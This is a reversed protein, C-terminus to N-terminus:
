RTAGYSSNIVFKGEAPKWGATSIGKSAISENTGIADAKNTNNVTLVGTSSSNKYYANNTFHMTSAIKAGVVYVNSTSSSHLGFMNNTVIVDTPKCNTINGGSATYAGYFTNKNLTMETVTTQGAAVLIFNTAPETIDSSYFVNNDFTIADVTQTAAFNLFNNSSNAEVCFESDKIVIDKVFNSGDSYIFQTASPINASCNNMVITECTGGGNVRLSYTSTTTIAFDINSLVWYDEASTAPIYSYGSRTVKSRKSPDNGIVVISFSSNMSVGDADSDIFYVGNNNLGKSTSAATILTADGYTEKNIVKGAVVLDFGMQYSDYPTLDTLNVDITKLNRVQNRFGSTKDGFLANETSRKKVTGNNYEFYFTFGKRCDNTRFVIYYDTDAKFGDAPANLTIMKSEGSKYSHGTINTEAKITGLSALTAEQGNNNIATFRVSKVNEPNSLRFKVMTVINKFLLNNESDAKAVAVLASPDFSGHVATQVAPIVVDFVGEATVEKIASAPYVAYHNAAETTWGTFTATSGDIDIASFENFNTGSIVAIKDGDQWVICNGDHTVKTEAESAATFTMPVLEVKPTENIEPALEKACSIAAVAAAALLFIKMTNKM